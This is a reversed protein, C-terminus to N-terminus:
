AVPPSSPRPLSRFAVTLQSRANVRRYGFPSVWKAPALYRWHLPSGPSTFWRLLGLFLFRLSERLLPSRFPFLGFDYRTLARLRQTITTTPRRYSYEPYLPPCTKNLRFTQSPRGFLTFTGYAFLLAHSWLRVRTPRSGLFGTQLQPSWEGLSFVVRQGITFFYRSPFTFLVGPPPHFLVQFRM